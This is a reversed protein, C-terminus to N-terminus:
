ALAEIVVAGGQSGGVCAAGFAYNRGAFQRAHPLRSAIRAGCAARPHSGAITRGYLNFMQNQNNPLQWGALAIELAVALEVAVVDRLSDGSARFPTRLASFMVIDTGTGQTDM